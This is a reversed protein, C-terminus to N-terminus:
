LKWWWATNESRNDALKPGRVEIKALSADAKSSWFVLGGGRLIEPM